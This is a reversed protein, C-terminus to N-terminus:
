RRRLGFVLALALGAAAGFALAERVGFLVRLNQARVERAILFGVASDNVQAIRTVIVGAGAQQLTTEDHSLALGLGGQTVSVSDAEVRGIGGQRVAVEHAKVSRAGAQRLVVTGAVVDGADGRITRDDMDDEQRGTLAIMGTM